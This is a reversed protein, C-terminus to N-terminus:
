LPSVDGSVYFAVGEYAWDNSYNAIVYDRETTSITYFHGRYNNSWFRYVATLDPRASASACYATGEYNWDNSYNAIVYDREASSITYFHGRYVPSWFRYLNTFGVPCIDDAYYAIGEYTWDHSLTAIVNNKEAESITFFHHRYRDSWFRYVPDFNSSPLPEVLTEYANLIGFGIESSYRVGGPTTAGMRLKYRAEAFSIDPDLSKLLAAVGAVQPSAFSTGQSAGISFTTFSDTAPDFYPSTNDLTCPLPNSQSASNYCTYNLGRFGDGAGNAGVPASLDIWGGYTSYWSRAGTPNTAGVAIVNEYGAPYQVVSNATNGSAAVPIIGAAVAEDVFAEEVTSPSPGGFSMNIVDAGNDIAYALSDIVAESWVNGSYDFIKIPMIQVNSAIGAGAIANNTAGAIIESVLTGHGYDDDPYGDEITNVHGTSFYLYDYYDNINVGHVDDIYSNADGDDVGNLIEGPNTWLNVPVEPIPDFNWGNEYNEYITPQAVTRDEFALGTDIVAVVVTNKGGYNDGAGGLNLQADVYSWAKPMEIGYVGGTINQLQWQNSFDTDDPVGDTWFLERKYSPEAFLVDNDSNLETLFDVVGKDEPIQMAVYTSNGITHKNTKQHQPIDSSHRSAVASIDSKSLSKKLLVVVYDSSIENNTALEQIETKNMKTKKGQAINQKWTEHLSPETSSGSEDSNDPSSPIVGANTNTRLSNTFLLLGVVALLVCLHIFNRGTM